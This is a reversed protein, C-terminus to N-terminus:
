QQPVDASTSEDTEEEEVDAAPKNADTVIAAAPANPVKHLLYYDIVQRAIPAAFQAGFGTNEVILALAIKPKDVPAFSIFWANDLLKKSLHGANYKEGKLSFVQATGTKGASTYGAGYFAKAGTGEKNVGAMANKIVDINAQKLAITSIPQPEVKTRSTGASDEIYQVLHPRYVVGNNALIATAQAMQLPTYSNFGQGIGISVTDGAVWKGAGPRKFTRAKWEQSPLVGRKEGPLDIGSIQGLGFPAM